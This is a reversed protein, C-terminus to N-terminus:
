LLIQKQITKYQIYTEENPGSMRRDAGNELGGM